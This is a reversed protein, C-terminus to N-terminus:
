QTTGEYVRVFKSGDFVIKPEKFHQELAGVIAKRGRRGRPVKTSEREQQSPGSDSDQQEREVRLREQQSALSRSVPIDLRETRVEVSSDGDSERVPVSDGADVPEGEGAGAGCGRDVQTATQWERRRSGTKMASALFMSGLRSPSLPREGNRRRHQPDAAAPEDAFPSTPPPRSPSSLAPLRAASPPSPSDTSSNVSVAHTNEIKRSLSHWLRDTSDDADVTDDQTDDGEAASARLQRTLSKFTTTDTDADTGAAEDNDSANLPEESDSWLGGSDSLDSLDSLGDVITPHMSSETNQQDDDERKGFVEEGVGGLQQGEVDATDEIISAAAKRGLAWLYRMRDEPTALENWEFYPLVFVKYGQAELLRQQLKSFATRHTTDLYYSFPGACTIVVKQQPLYFDMCYSDAFIRREIEVGMQKFTWAVEYAWRSGYERVDKMEAEKIKDLFDRLPRPLKARFEPHILRLTVEVPKLKKLKFGNIDDMHPALLTLAKEILKTPAGTLCVCSHLILTLSQVDFVNHKRGSVQDEPSEMALAKDLYADAASQFYRNLKPHNFDLKAFGNVTVALMEQSFDDIRNCAVRALLLLANGDRIDLRAFAGVIMSVHQASARTAVYPLRKLLKLWFGTHYSYFFALANASLALEHIGCEGMHLCLQQVCLEITDFRRVELKRMANLVLCLGRVTFADIHKLIYPSVTRVLREDRYRVRAFAYLVVVFETPTMFPAMVDVRRVHRRWLNPDRANTVATKLITKALVASSEMWKKRVGHQILAKHPQLVAESDDDSLEEDARAATDPPVFVPKPWVDQGRANVAAHVHRVSRVSRGLSHGCCCPAGVISM